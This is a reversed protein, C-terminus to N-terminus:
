QVSVFGLKKIVVEIDFRQCSEGSNRSITAFCHHLSLHVTEQLVTPAGVTPRCSSTKCRPSLTFIPNKVCAKAATRITNSVAVWASARALRLWLALTSNLYCCGRGLWLLAWLARCPSRSQGCRGPQRDHPQHVSCCATASRQRRWLSPCNSRLPHRVYGSM